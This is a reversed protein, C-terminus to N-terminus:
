VFTEKDFTSALSNMNDLEIPKTISVFRTKWISHEGWTTERGNIYKEAIISFITVVWDAGHKSSMKLNIISSRDDIKQRQRKTASCNGLIRNMMFIFIIKKNSKQRIKRTQIKFSGIEWRAHRWVRTNAWNDNESGGKSSKKKCFSFFIEKKRAVVRGGRRQRWWKKAHRGQMSSM